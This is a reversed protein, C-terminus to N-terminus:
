FRLIGNKLMVTLIHLLKTDQLKLLGTLIITVSPLILILPSILMVLVFSFVVILQLSYISFIKALCIGVDQLRAM